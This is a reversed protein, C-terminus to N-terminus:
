DLFMIGDDEAADNVLELETVPQHATGNNVEVIVPPANTGGSKVQAIVIEDDLESAVRNRLSRDDLPLRFDSQERAWMAAERNYPSEVDYNEYRIMDWLM